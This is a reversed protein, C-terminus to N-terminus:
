SSNSIPEDISPTSQVLTLVSSMKKNLQKYQSKLDKIDKTQNRLQEIDLKLRLNEKKVSDKEELSKQLDEKIQIYKKELLDKGDISKQLDKALHLNKNTLFDNENTLKQSNETLELNKNKLFDKEDTTKQLDKVLRANENELTVIREMFNKKLVMTQDDYNKFVSKTDESSGKYDLDANLVSVKDGSNDINNNSNSSM